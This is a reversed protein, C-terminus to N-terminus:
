GSGIKEVKKAAGQHQHAADVRKEDCIPSHVAPQIVPVGIPGRLGPDLSIEGGLKESGPQARERVVQELDCKEKHYEAIKNRQM